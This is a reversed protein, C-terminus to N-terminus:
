EGYDLFMVVFTFCARWFNRVAQLAACRLAVFCAAAHSGWAWSHRLQPRQSTAALSKRTYSLFPM